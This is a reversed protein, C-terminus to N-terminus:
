SRKEKPTITPKLHSHIPLSVFFTTGQGVESEVWLQGGHAEVLSKTIPLGLGTGSGKRLGVETQQFTQFIREHDIPAIGPGTDQVALVIQGNQQYGKVTVHGEDTFKCANSVLNMAIQAIRGRDGTLPPLTADFDWILDVPKDHLLTEATCHVLDLEAALNINSEVYLVLSGAEIKSIDLVDNILNLLHKGSQAIKALAHSQEENVEGMMGKHMLKSFNIVANLPTRLEHSVSALFQSKVKNAREAEQRAVEAQAFLQANRVAVAIQEALTTLVRIDDEGFRDYHDAQLDLVGILNTGIVMPFVVEAKTDPLHSYSVFDPSASVDNAVMVERIRATQPVLGQDNLIDFQKGEAKMKQGANGTAAALELTATEHNHLFVSVHYLGFGQRTLEVLQPLLQHIDLVTTVQKSVNAAIILDHTRRKVRDELTNILSHLQETMTNFANALTGVEDQSQVTVRQSLDGGAITQATQAIQLVPRALTRSLLVVLILGLVLAGLEAALTVNLVTSVRSFIDERSDKVLTTGVENLSSFYRNIQAVARMNDNRTEYVTSKTVLTEQFTDRYDDLLRLYENAQEEPLGLTIIRNQLSDITERWPFLIVLRNPVSNSLSTTGVEMLRLERILASTQWDDTDAFADDLAQTTQYLNGVLGTYQPNEMDLRVIGLTELLKSYEDLSEKYSQIKELLNEIDQSADSGAQTGELSQQFEIVGAICSDLSDLASDVLYRSPNVGVDSISAVYMAELRQADQFDDQAATILENARFGIDFGEKVTGQISLTGAMGVGGILVMLLLLVSFSLTLKRAISRTFISLASKIRAKFNFPWSHAGPQTHM